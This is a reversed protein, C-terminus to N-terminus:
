RSIVRRSSARKSSGSFRARPFACQAASSFVGIRGQARWTWLCKDSLKLRKAVAPITHLEYTVTISM